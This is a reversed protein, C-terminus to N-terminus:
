IRQIKFSIVKEILVPNVEFFDWEDINIKDLNDQSIFSAMKTTKNIMLLDGVTFSEICEEPPTQVEENAAESLLMQIEQENYCGNCKHCEGSCVDEQVDEEIKLSSVEVEENTAESLLMQIENLIDQDDKFRDLSFILQRDLNYVMVYGCQKCMCYVNHGKFISSEKTFLVNNKENLDATCNPCFGQM